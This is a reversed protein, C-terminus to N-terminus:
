RVYSITISMELGCNMSKRCVLTIGIGTVQSHSNNKVLAQSLYYLELVVLYKIGILAWVFGPLGYIQVDCYFYFFFDILQLSYTVPHVINKYLVCM